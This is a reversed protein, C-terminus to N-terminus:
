VGLLNELGVGGLSTDECLMECGLVEDMSCLSVEGIGLVPAQSPLSHRQESVQFPLTWATFSQGGAPFTGPSQPPYLCFFPQKEKNLLFFSLVAACFRNKHWHFLWSVGTDDHCQFTQQYPHYPLSTPLKKTWPNINDPLEGM